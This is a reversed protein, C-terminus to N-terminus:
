RFFNFNVSIDRFENKYLVLHKIKAQWGAEIDSIKDGVLISNNLKLKYEKALEIMGTNPKRLEKGATYKVFESNRYFPAFYYHDFHVSYKKYHFSLDQMYKHFKKESYFGRGIGSQNTIIIVKYNLKNAFSILENGGPIIQNENFEHTYGEDFNLVGDRDLFLAKNNNLM